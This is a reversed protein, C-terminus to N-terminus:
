GLRTPKCAAADRGLHRKCLEVEAAKGQPSHTGDIRRILKGSRSRRTTRQDVRWEWWYIGQFWGEERAIQSWVDFAARYANLQPRERIRGGSSGQEEDSKQPAAVTGQRSLYGLGTFIVPKGYEDHVNRVVDVPSRGLGAQDTRWDIQLQELSPNNHSGNPRALPFYADIGIYDMGPEDWFFEHSKTDFSDRAVADWNAAFTLKGTYGNNDGTIRGDRIERVISRWQNIDDPDNSMGTLESGIVVMFAHTDRAVRVYQSLMFRYANFWERRRGADTIDVTRRNGARKSNMGVDVQPRIVVKMGQAKAQAIAHRLSLMSPTKCHRFDTGNQGRCVKNGGTSEHIEPANKDDTRNPDSFYQYWTPVLTVYDAHASTRAKRIWADSRSTGYHNWWFSTVNLGKQWSAPLPQVGGASAPAPSALAILAACLALAILLSRKM